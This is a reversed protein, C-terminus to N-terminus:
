ESMNKIYPLEPLAEFGYFRRANEGLFLSKEDDTLMETKVIFDYSMRYTIATMTRPYDSGWMVKDAGVTDIAIETQKKATLDQNIKEIILFKSGTLTPVKITSVVTGIVKGLYM